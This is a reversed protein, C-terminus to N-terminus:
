CRKRRLFTLTGELSMPPNLVQGCDGTDGKGLDWVVRCGDERSVVLVGNTIVESAPMQSYFIFTEHAMM